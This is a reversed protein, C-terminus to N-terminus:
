TVRALLQRSDVPEAHQAREHAALERLAAAGTAGLGVVVVDFQGMPRILNHAIRDKDLKSSLWM